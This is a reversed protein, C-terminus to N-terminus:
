SLIEVFVVPLTLKIIFKIYTDTLIIEPPFYKLVYHASMSDGIYIEKM